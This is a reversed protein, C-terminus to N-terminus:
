IKVLVKNEGIVTGTYVKNYNKNMLCISDGVVGDSLATAETSITLNNTNFFVTVNASRVVDPRLKVFRKDIVEGEKFAKKAVIDKGLSDSKLQYGLTNSVELKKITVLSPTIQQERNIFTSAVLVNEWAKVVIPANVAKVFRGDVYISVKQLDRPMFKKATSEVVYSVKGNPVELDKFPLAVVEVSLQADTYEKYNAEVQKAVASKIEAVSLIAAEAKSLNFFPSFILIMILIYKLAKKM